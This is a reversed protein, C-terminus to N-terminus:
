RPPTAGHRHQWIRGGAVRGVSPNVAEGAYTNNPQQTFVLEARRRWSTSRIPSRQPCARRRLRDPHLQRHHRDGPQRLHGRWQRGARDRDHQRQRLLRHQHDAHGALQRHHHRQRGLERRRRHRRPQDGRRRRDADAAAIFALKASAAITFRARIHRQDASGDTATLTYTGASSILLNSFTAVGSSLQATVTNGGGSSPAATSRSRSPPPATAPSRTTSSTRPADRRDPPEPRHRRQRDGAARHQLGAQDGGAAPDAHERSGSAHDGASDSITVNNTISTTGAPISANLDVSFVASGTVGASLNGVTFTYTSGAGGNGSTLTWGPTSNALDATANAPVTETLVVGTASTGTNNLISGANNYNITYPIVGQATPIINGDTMSIGLQAPTGAPPTIEVRDISIVNSAANNLIKFTHTGPGLGSVSYVM